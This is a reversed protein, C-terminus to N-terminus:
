YTTKINLSNCLILFFNFIKSIKNKKDFNMFISFFLAIFIVLYSYGYRYLPFKLFFLLSGIISIAITILFKIKFEKNQNRLNSKTFNFLLLIISIIM